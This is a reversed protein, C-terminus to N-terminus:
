GKTSGEAPGGLRPKPLPLEGTLNLTANSIMVASMPPFLLPLAVTGVALVVALSGLQLLVALTYGPNAIFLKASQAMAKTVPLKGKVMLPITYLQACLFMAFAYLQFIGFTIGALGGNQRWFAWVVYTAGAVLLYILMLILSRGGFEWAGRWFPKFNARQGQAIPLVVAYTGAWAPVAFLALLWLWRAGGVTLPLLLITLATFVLGVLVLTIVGHYVEYASKKLLYGLPFRKPSETTLRDDGM